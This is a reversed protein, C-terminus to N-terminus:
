KSPAILKKKDEFEKDLAEQAEEQLAKIEQEKEQIKKVLIDFSRIKKRTVTITHDLNFRGAKYDAMWGSITPQTMGLEEAIERMSHKGRLVKECVAIKTALTYRKQSPGHDVYKINIGPTNKIKGKKGLWFSVAGAGLGIYKEFSTASIKNSSIFSLTRAKFQDSYRPRNSVEKERDVEAKFADLKTKNVPSLDEIKKM